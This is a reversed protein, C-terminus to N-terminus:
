ERFSDPIGLRKREDNRWRRAEELTHVLAEVGTAEFITAYEMDGGTFELRIRNMLEAVKELAGSIDTRLVASFPKKSRGLAADHDRHAILRHRRDRIGDVRQSIEALLAECDARLAPFRQQDIALVLRELTLNTRQNKGKGQIAPDTLRSLGLLLNEALLTHLQDFFTVASDYLLEERKEDGDFLTSFTQWAHHVHTVDDSLVVFAGEIEDPMGPFESGM